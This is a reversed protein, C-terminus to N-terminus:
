ELSVLKKLGEIEEAQLYRYQSRVMKGLSIPGFSERCFKDVPRGIQEFLKRIARNQPETTTIRLWQKGETARELEIDSIKIRKNEVLVKSDLIRKIQKEELHGDIKMLYTKPIEYKAMNLRQALEGDNTLLLLGEADTDLRGIPIVREKVKPMLDFVTGRELVQDSPRQPLVGKPKFLAIVVRNPANSNHLLKGRVKIHDKGPIVKTGLKAVQGNVTIEGLAIWEEAQRRSALGYDALLKQLRIPQSM